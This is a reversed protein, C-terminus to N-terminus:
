ILIAHNWGFFAYLLLWAICRQGCSNQYDKQEADLETNQMTINVHNPLMKSKTRGFSDYFLDYSMAMWHSGPQTSDDANCILIENKEKITPIKDSSFVGLFRWKTNNFFLECCRQLEFNNTIQDHGMKRVVIKL